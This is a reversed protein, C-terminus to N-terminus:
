ARKIAEVIEDTSCSIADGMYDINALSRAGAEPHGTGCADGIVIPVFGLDTGSRVTPDIGIETAVGCIAFAKLGLDRLIIALPTGEFASFTIKDLVAESPRPRLEPVIEFGPSDRLFWPHVAEPDETRQWAMAQRLQFSGMLPRPMSLHRLFIIPFGAQRAAELVKGIHGVLETGDPLQRMIGVQMDYVILAMRDPACFDALKRGMMWTERAMADDGEAQRDEGHGAAGSLAQTRSSHGPKIM